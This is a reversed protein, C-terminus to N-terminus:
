GTASHSVMSHRPLSLNLSICRGDSGRWHFDLACAGRMGASPFHSFSSVSAVFEAAFPSAAGRKRSVGSASAWSASHVPAHAPGLLGLYYGLAPRRPFHAEVFPPPFFQLLLSRGAKALSSPRTFSIGLAATGLVSQAVVRLSIAVRLIECGKACRSRDSFDYVSQGNNINKCSSCM